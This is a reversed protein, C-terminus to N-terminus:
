HSVDRILLRDGEDVVVADKSFHAPSQRWQNLFTTLDTWIIKVRENGERQKKLFRQKYLDAQEISPVVLHVNIESKNGTLLELGLLYGIELM